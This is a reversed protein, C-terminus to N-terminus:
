LWVIVDDVGDAYEDFGPKVIALGISECGSDCEVTWGSWSKDGHDCDEPDVYDPENDWGNYYADPDPEYMSDIYQEFRYAAGDMIPEGQDNTFGYNSM